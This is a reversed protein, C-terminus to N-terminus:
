DLCLVVPRPQLVPAWRSSQQLASSLWIINNAKASMNFILDVGIRIPYAPQHSISPPDNNETSWYFIDCFWLWTVCIYTLNAMSILLQEFWAKCCKIYPDKYDISHKNRNIFPTNSEISTLCWLKKNKKSSAM